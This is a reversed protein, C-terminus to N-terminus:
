KSYKSILEKVLESLNKNSSLIIDNQINIKSPLKENIYSNKLINQKNKLCDNLNNKANNIDYHSISYKKVITNLEDNLESIKNSLKIAKKFGEEYDNLEKDFNPIVINSKLTEIVKNIVADIEYKKLKM